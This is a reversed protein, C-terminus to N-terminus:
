TCDLATSAEECIGTACMYWTVVGATCSVPPCNCAGTKADDPLLGFTVDYRQTYSRPSQLRITRSVRFSLAASQASTSTSTNRVRFQDVGVQETTVTEKVNRQIIVVAGSLSGIITPNTGGSGTQLVLYKGTQGAAPYVIQEANRIKLGANQVAQAGNQEVVSVTQQLLRNEAATFMMPLTVSVVLAMIALFILLEILTAGPRDRLPSRTV